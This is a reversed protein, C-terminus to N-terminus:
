ARPVRMRRVRCASASCPTSWWTPPRCRDVAMFHSAGARPSTTPAPASASPTRPVHEDLHVVTVVHGSRQALQALVYGDGGNNGPGCVVVLRQARPWHDRLHRWAAQGARLMLVHPDGGLRVTARADLDRAAATDYLPFSGSM